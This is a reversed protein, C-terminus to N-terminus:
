IKFFSFLALSGTDIQSILALFCKKMLDEQFHQISLAHASLIRTEWQGEGGVAGHVNVQKVLPIKM